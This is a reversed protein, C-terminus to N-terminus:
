KKTIIEIVGKSAKEGYKATAKDGKLVTVSEIDNPAILDPDFDKDM